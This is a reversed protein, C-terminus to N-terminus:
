NPRPRKGPGPGEPFFGEVLLGHRKDAATFVTPKSVPEDVDPRLLQLIVRDPLYLSGMLLTTRLPHQSPRIYKPSSPDLTPEWRKREAEETPMAVSWSEAILIAGQIRRDDIQERFKAGLMSKVEPAMAVARAVGPIELLKGGVIVWFENTPEIEAEGNKKAKAAKAAKAKNATKAKAADQAARYDIACQELRDILLKAAADPDINETQQPEHETGIRLISRSGEVPDFATPFYGPATVQDRRLVEVEIGPGSELQRARACLIRDRTIFLWAEAPSSPRPSTILLAPRAEQPIKEGDMAEQMEWFIRLMGSPDLMGLEYLVVLESQIASIKGSRGMMALMRGGPEVDQEAKAGPRPPSALPSSNREIQDRCVQCVALLTDISAEYDKVWPGHTAALTKVLSSLAKDGRGLDIRVTDRGNQSPSPSPDPSSPKKAPM